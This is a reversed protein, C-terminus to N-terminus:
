GKGVALTVTDNIISGDPLTYEIQFTTYGPKVMMFSTSALQQMFEAVKLITLQASGGPDSPSWVNIFNVQQNLNVDYTEKDFSTSFPKIEVNTKADVVKIDYTYKTVSNGLIAYGNRAVDFEYSNASACM